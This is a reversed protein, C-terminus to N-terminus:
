GPSVDPRTHHQDVADRSGPRSTAVFLDDGLTPRDRLMGAIAAPAVPASPSSRDVHHIATGDGSAGFDLDAVDISTPVSLTATRARDDDVTLASPRDTAPSPDFTDGTTQTADSTEPSTDVDIASGPGAADDDLSIPATPDQPTTVSGVAEGAAETVPAVASAVKETVPVVARQQVERVPEAVPRTATEVVTGVPEAVPDAVDTVPRTIPRAAEEVPDTVPALSDTTPELVGGTLDNVTGVLSPDDDGADAAAGDASASVAGFLVIAVASAAAVLLWLAFRRAARAPRPGM